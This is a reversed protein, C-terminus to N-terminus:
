LSLWIPVKWSNWANNFFSFFLLHCSVTMGESEYSEFADGGGWQLLFLFGRLGVFLCLFFFFFVCRIMWLLFLWLVDCLLEM